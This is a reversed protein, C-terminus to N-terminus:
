LLLFVGERHDTGFLGGLTWLLSNIKLTRSREM